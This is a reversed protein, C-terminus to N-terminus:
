RPSYWWILVVLGRLLRVRQRDSGSRDTHGMVDLKLFAERLFPPPPAGANIRAEMADRAAGQLKRLLVVPPERAPHSAGREAVISPLLAELLSISPPATKKNNSSHDRIPQTSGRAILIEIALTFLEQPLNAYAPFRLGNM